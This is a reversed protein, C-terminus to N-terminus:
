LQPAYIKVKCVTGELELIEAVYFTGAKVCEIISNKEPAEVYGAIQDGYMVSIREEQVHVTLIKGVELAALLEKNPYTLVTIVELKECYVTVKKRVPPVYYGGGGGGTMTKRKLYNININKKSGGKM